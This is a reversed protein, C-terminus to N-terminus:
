RTMVLLMYRRKAAFSEPDVIRLNDALVAQVERLVDELVYHVGPHKRQLKGIGFSVLPLGFRSGWMHLYRLTPLVHPTIDRELTIHWGAEVVRARFANWEHGSRHRTKRGAKADGAAASAAAATQFYDCAVWRGGPKLVREMLPVAEDLKLYQLSESTVVTGYRGAHEDAPLEEFKAHVAEVDPYKERVHAIQWADPTLAVPTFGRGKFLGILGGMGCGIDLVPATRDHVEDALVEAYRLQAALIENLSIDEPARNPDDFYGYHLFGSPLLQSLLQLQADGRVKKNAARDRKRGRQLKIANWLHRPHAVRKLVGKTVTGARLTKPGSDPSAASSSSKRAM